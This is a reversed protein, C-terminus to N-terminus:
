NSIAIADKSFLLYKKRVGKAFEAIEEFKQTKYPSVRCDLVLSWGLTYDPLFVDLGESKVEDLKKQSEVEVLILDRMM